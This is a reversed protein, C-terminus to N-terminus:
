AGTRTACMPAGWVQELWGWISLALMLAFPPLAYVLGKRIM